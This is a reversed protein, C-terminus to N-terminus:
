GCAGAGTVEEDYPESDLGDYENETVKFDGLAVGNVKRWLLILGGVGIAAGIIGGITLYNEGKINM